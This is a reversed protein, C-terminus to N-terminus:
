TRRPLASKVCAIDLIALLADATKGPLESLSQQIVDISIITKEAL